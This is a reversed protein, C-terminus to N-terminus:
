EPIEGMRAEIGERLEDWYARAAGPPDDDFRGLWEMLIRNNSDEGLARRLYGHIIEVIRASEWFVPKGQAHILKAARAHHGPYDIEVQHHGCVINPWLKEGWGRHFRCMGANDLTVEAIM